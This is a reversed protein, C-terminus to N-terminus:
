LALKVHAKHEEEEGTAPASSRLLTYGGIGSILSALLIGTKAEAILADNDFALGTVFISMTFGIGGLMSVGLIQKWSVGAPLSAIGTRVALWSFLTIGLPKGVVLGLLVGLAIPQALVGLLDENLLVGANSLAFLPMIAFVVWPHLYHELRQLPSEVQKSAIELAELAAKQRTTTLAMSGRSPRSDGDMAFQDILARGRAVFQETDITVKLPITMAILVGAVTPHIGSEFFSVWAAIGIIGYVIPTRVGAWNAVVLALLLGGGIALNTWFISETFFIAIVIVAGIDDVIAFATLFVKLSLPARSGLLAMVGLSFAIDTSMPIAWGRAGPGETNLALYFAAPVVMGGVAAIVPLAARRVSALEGVLVSRKIELGVVFFFIAMLADNIWFHLPEDLLFGPVGIILHSEWLNEYNQEWGLNVWLLAALTCLLLVIGGSAQVHAFRQFPLVLLDIPSVRPSRLRMLLQWM